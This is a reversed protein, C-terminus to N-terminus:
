RLFLAMSREDGKRGYNPLSVSRMETGNLLPSKRRKAKVANWDAVVIRRNKPRAEM